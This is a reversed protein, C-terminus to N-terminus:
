DTTLTGFCAMELYLDQTLFLFPSAIEGMKRCKMKGGKSQSFSDWESRDCM